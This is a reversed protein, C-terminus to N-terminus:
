QKKFVANYAEDYYREKWFFMANYTIVVLMFIVAFSIKDSFVMPAIAFIIALSLYPGVRVTKEKKIKAIVMGIMTFVSMYLLYEYILEFSNLMLLSICIVKMDGGGIANEGTILFLLFFLLFLGISSILPLYWMSNLNAFYYVLGVGLLGLSLGNPIISTSYDFTSIALLILILVSFFIINFILMIM